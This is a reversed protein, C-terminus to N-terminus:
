EFIKYFLSVLFRIILSGMIGCGIVFGVLYGRGISNYEIVGVNKFLYQLICTFPSIIGHSFGRFFGHSVKISIVSSAPAYSTIAYLGVVSLLLVIIVSLLNRRLYGVLIRM